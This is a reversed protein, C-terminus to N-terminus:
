QINGCKSCKYEDESCEHLTICRCRSCYKKESPGTQSPDFLKYVSQTSKLFGMFDGVRLNVTKSIGAVRNHVPISVDNIPINKTKDQDM